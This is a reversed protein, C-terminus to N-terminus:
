ELELLFFCTFVIAGNIFSNEFAFNNLEILM